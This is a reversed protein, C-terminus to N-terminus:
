SARDARAWGTAPEASPAAHDETMISDPSEARFAAKPTPETAFNQDYYEMLLETCCFIEAQSRTPM